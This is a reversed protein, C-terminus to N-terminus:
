EREEKLEVDGVHQLLLNGGSKRIPNKKRVLHLPSMEGLGGSNVCTYTTFSFPVLM